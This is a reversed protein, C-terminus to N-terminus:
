TTEPAGRWAHPDPARAARPTIGPRRSHADAHRGRLMMIVYHPVVRNQNNGEASRPSGRTDNREEFINQAAAVNGAFAHEFHRFVVIVEVSRAGDVLLAA